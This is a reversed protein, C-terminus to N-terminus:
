CGQRSGDGSVATIDYVIANALSPHTDWMVRYATLADPVSPRSMGGAGEGPLGGFGNADFKPASWALRLRDATGSESAVTLSVRTVFGPFVGAPIVYQPESSIAPSYGDGYASVRVYYKQGEGLGAIRYEREEASVVDSRVM